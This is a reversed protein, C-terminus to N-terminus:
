GMEIVAQDKLGGCTMTSSLDDSLGSLTATQSVHWAVTAWLLVNLTKQFSFRGGIGTM